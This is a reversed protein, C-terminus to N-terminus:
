LVLALDENLNKLQRLRTFHWPRFNFQTVIPGSKISIIEGQCGFEKTKKEIATKMLDNIRDQESMERPFRKLSASPTTPEECFPCLKADTVIICTKCYRRVIAM